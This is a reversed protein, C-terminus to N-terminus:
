WTLKILIFYCIAYLPPNSWRGPAGGGYLCARCSSPFFSSTSPHILVLNPPPSRRRAAAASLHLPWQNAYLNSLSIKYFHNRWEKLNQFLWGLTLVEDCFPFWDNTHSSVSKFIVSHGLPLPGSQSVSERVSLQSLPQTISRRVEQNATQQSSPKSISQDM